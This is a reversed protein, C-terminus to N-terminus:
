REGLEVTFIGNVLASMFGAFFISSWLDYGTIKLIWFLGFGTTASITASVLIFVVQKLSSAKPKM